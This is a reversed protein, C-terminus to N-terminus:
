KMKQLEWLLETNKSYSWKIRNFNCTGSISKERIKDYLTKLILTEM